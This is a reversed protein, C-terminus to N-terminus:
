LKGGTSVGFGLRGFQIKNSMVYDRKIGTDEVKGKRWHGSSEEKCSIPKKLKWLHTVVHAM